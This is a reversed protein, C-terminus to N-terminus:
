LVLFHSGFPSFLAQHQKGAINSSRARGKTQGTEGEAAKKAPQPELHGIRWSRCTLYFRSYDELFVHEGEIPSKLLPATYPVESKLGKGLSLDFM